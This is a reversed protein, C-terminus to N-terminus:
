FRDIIAFMQDGSFAAVLVRDGIALPREHETLRECIFFDDKDLDIPMNNVRIRIDPYGATVRAFELDVDKNYGVKKIAQYLKSVGSSHRDFVFM